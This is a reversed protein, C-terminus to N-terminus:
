LLGNDGSAAMGVVSTAYLLDDLSLVLAGEAAGVDVVVGGEDGGGHIETFAGVLVDVCVWVVWTALDFGQDLDEGRLALCGVGFGDDEALPGREKGKDLRVQLAVADSVGADVATHLRCGAVGGCVLEGLVWLALNEEGTQADAADAQVKDRGVLGDQGIAPPGRM